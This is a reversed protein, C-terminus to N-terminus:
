SVTVELEGAARTAAASADRVALVSRAVRLAAELAQADTLGNETLFELAEALDLDAIHKGNEERIVGLATLDAIRAAIVQPDESTSPGQDYVTPMPDAPNTQGPDLGAVLAELRGGARVYREIQNLTAGSRRAREIQQLRELHEAAYQAFRGNRAPRAILGRSQYARVNRTTMGAASALEELNM